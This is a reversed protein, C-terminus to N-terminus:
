LIKSTRVSTLAHPANRVGYSLRCQFNIRPPFDRAAVPFRVQMLPTDTCREILQAVDGCRSSLIWYSVHKWSLDGVTEMSYELMKLGSLFVYLFMPRVVCVSYCKGFILWLFLYGRYSRSLGNEVVASIVTKKKIKLILRTHLKDTEILSIMFVFLQSHAGKSLVRCSLMSNKLLFARKLAVFWCNLLRNPRQPFM